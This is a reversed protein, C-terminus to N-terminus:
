VWMNFRRNKKLSFGQIFLFIINILYIWALGAAVLLYSLKTMGGIGAIKWYYALLFVIAGWELLGWLSYLSAIIDTRTHQFKSMLCAIVLFAAGITFPV